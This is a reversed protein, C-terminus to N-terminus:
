QPSTSVTPGESFEENRLDDRRFSNCVNRRRLPGAKAGYSEEEILAYSRLPNLRTTESGMLSVTAFIDSPAQSEIRRPVEVM